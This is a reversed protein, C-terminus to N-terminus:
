SRGPTGQIVWLPASYRGACLACYCPACGVAYDEQWQSVIRRASVMDWVDPSPDPPTPTHPQADPNEAVPMPNWPKM